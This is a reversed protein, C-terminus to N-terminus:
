IITNTVCAIGLTIKHGVVFPEEVIHFIVLGKNWDVCMLPPAWSCDRPVGNRSRYCMKQEKDVRCGLGCGRNLDWVGLVVSALSLDRALPRCSPTGSSTSKGPAWPGRSKKTATLLLFLHSSHSSQKWCPLWTKPYLQLWPTARSIGRALALEWVAPATEGRCPQARSVFGWTISLSLLIFM